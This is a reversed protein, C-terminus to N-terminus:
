ADLVSVAYPLDLVTLLVGDSAGVHLTQTAVSSIQVVALADWGGQPSSQANVVMGTAQGEMDASFIEDGAALATDAHVRYMRRKLRGLYQMRAVIEQGTYCGKKFDVSGTLDFNVMQPVFQEQTVKEIVPLGAQIMLWQWQAVSMASARQSLSAMCTETGDLPLMLIFRQADLAIVTTSKTHVVSMPQDPAGGCLDAILAAASPGAVGVRRWLMRADSLTAKSRLVYMSLRKQISAQMSEPLQMLVAADRRWILFNAMLRGKPSCMGSYQALHPTAKRIDNTLQGQLFVDVDDGTVAILGEASLDVWTVDNEVDNSQKNMM